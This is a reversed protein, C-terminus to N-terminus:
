KFFSFLQSFSLKKKDIIKLEDLVLKDEHDAIWKKLEQKDQCYTLYIQGSKGVANITYRCSHNRM